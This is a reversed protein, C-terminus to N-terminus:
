AGQRILAAGDKSFADMVKAPNVAFGPAPAALAKQRFAADMSKGIARRTPIAQCRCLYGNPPHISDWIPDSSLESYGHLLAHEPRVRDDGVTYYIFYPLYKQVLPTTASRYRAANHANTAAQDVVLKIHSPNAPTFGAKTMKEGLDKAAQKISVGEMVAEAIHDQAIKVVRVTQANAISFAAARHYADLAKYQAPKIAKLSELFAVAKEPRVQAFTDEKLAAEYVSADPLVTEVPVEIDTEQEVQWLGLLSAAIMVATLTNILPNM